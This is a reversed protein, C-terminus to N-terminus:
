AGVPQTRPFYALLSDKMQKNQNAVGLLKGWQTERRVYGKEESREARNKKSEEKDWAFQKEKMRMSWKNLKENAADIALKDKRQLNAWYQSEKSADDIASNQMFTTTLAAGAAIVGAVVTFIPM